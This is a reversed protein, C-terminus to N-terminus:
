TLAIWLVLRLADTLAEDEGAYPWMRCGGVAPGRRTNHIAIIARLGCEPDHCFVVEEHADFEPHMFIPM